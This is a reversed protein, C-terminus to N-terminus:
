VCFSKHRLIICTKRAFAGIPEKCSLKNIMHHTMEGNGQYVGFHQPLNKAGFFVLIDHKRLQTKEKIEIFGEKEFNEIIRNDPNTFYKEDRPYDNIFIDFHHQYYLRVLTFCDYVGWIFPNGIYKPKYNRPFVSQFKDLENVYLYYPIRCANCSNIDEESFSELPSPQPHSHYVGIINYQRSIELYKKNDIEFHDIPNAAVNECPVIKAEAGNEVIFGCCELPENKKAEIRIQEVIATNM